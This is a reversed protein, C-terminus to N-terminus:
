CYRLSNYTLYNDAHLIHMLLGTVGIKSQELASQMDGVEFVNSIIDRGQTSEKESAWNYASSVANHSAVGVFRSGPTSINITENIDTYLIEHRLNVPKRTVYRENGGLSHCNIYLVPKLNLIIDRINQTEPESFPASGKPNSTNSWRYDFNQAIDVGNDNGYSYVGEISSKFTDPALVPIIYFSYKEKLEIIKKTMEPYLSPKSLVQMFHMIWYSTRWEHSKHICGDIYIVPKKSTDGMIFGYIPNGGYSDILEVRSFGEISSVEDIYGEYSEIAGQAYNVGIEPIPFDIGKFPKINIM